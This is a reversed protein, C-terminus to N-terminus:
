EKNGEKMKRLKYKFHKKTNNVVKCGCWKCIINDKYVPIFVSHGCKCKISNDVREQQIKIDSLFSIYTPKFHKYRSIKNSFKKIDM